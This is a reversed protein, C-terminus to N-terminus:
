DISVNIEHTDCDASRQNRKMEIKSSAVLHLAYVWFMM